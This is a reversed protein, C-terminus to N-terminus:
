ISKKMIFARANEKFESELLWESLNFKWECRVILDDWKLGVINKDVLENRVMDLFFEPHDRLFEDFKADGNELTFKVVTLAKLDTLLSLQNLEPTKLKL